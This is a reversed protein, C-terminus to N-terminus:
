QYTPFTAYTQVLNVVEVWTAVRPLDYHRNWPRDFLVKHGPFRSVTDGNDDILLDGPYTWKQAHVVYDELDGRFGRFGLFWRKGPNDAATLFTVQHGLARLGRVGDYADPVARATYYLGPNSLYAYIGKGCEPKVFKSIDWDTVKDPTLTDEWDLNYVALWSSVFDVLVDDVDCLIRM